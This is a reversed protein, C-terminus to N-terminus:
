RRASLMSLAALGKIATAAEDSPAHMDAARQQVVPAALQEVL